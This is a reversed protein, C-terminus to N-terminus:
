FSLQVMGYAYDNARFYGMPGGQYALFGALTNNADPRYSEFLQIGFIAKLGDAVEITVRPHIYLDGWDPSWAVSALIQMRDRLLTLVGLVTVAVHHQSEMLTDVAPRIIIDHEAAATLTFTSGISYRLEVAYRVMPSLYPELTRRYHITKEFAAAEASIVLDGVAIAVDMGGMISRKYETRVLEADPNTLRTLENQNPMRNQLLPVRIADHMHVMPRDVIHWLVYGDLDFGRGTFGVRAGLDGHWPLEEPLDAVLYSQIGDRAYPDFAILEDVLRETIGDLQQNMAGSGTTPALKPIMEELLGPRLAAFDRGYLAARQPQFFPIYVFELALPSLNVTADVALVPIKPDDLGAGGLARTYDSPNLRDLVSALGNQGWKMTLRGARVRLKGARFQLWTDGLDVLFDAETRDGFRMDYRAKAEIHFRANRAFRYKVRFDIGSHWEFRDEYPGKMVLDPAMTTFIRGGFSLGKPLPKKEWLPKKAVPVGAAEAARPSVPATLVVLALSVVLLARAAPSM